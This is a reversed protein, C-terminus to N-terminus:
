KMAASTVSDQPTTGAITGAQAERAGVPDSEVEVRWHGLQRTAREGASQRRRAARGLM